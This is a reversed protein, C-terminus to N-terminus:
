VSPAKFHALIHDLQEMSEYSIIVRGRDNKYEIAVAFGTVECLDRELSAINPDKALRKPLEVTGVESRSNEDRVLREIERVSLGKKAAMQAMADPDKTLLLARAHGSSIAGSELLDRAGASLKLLRLMNTVHSRSKGVVKSLDAQTYSFEDLLQQYGLAEELPNLDSRQVNEIIALELTEKDSAEIQLVPVEHLGVRQAARWRREGAIIEYFGGDTPLKRVLIPQIIGKERISEALDSLDTEQFTRRPNRPNPRLFATSIQKLGRDSERIGLPPIDGLLAALGRGLRPKTEDAM